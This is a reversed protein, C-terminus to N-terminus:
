QITIYKYFTKEAMFDFFLIFFFFVHILGCMQSALTCKQAKFDFIPCLAGRKHHIGSPQMSSVSEILSRAGEEGTIAQAGLLRKEREAEKWTECVM